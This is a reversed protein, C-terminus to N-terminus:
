KDMKILMTIGGELIVLPIFMDSFALKRLTFGRYQRPEAAASQCKWFAQTTARLCPSQMASLM